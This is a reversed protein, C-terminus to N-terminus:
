VYNVNNQYIFDAQRSKFHKWRVRSCFYFLVKPFRQEIQSCSLSFRQPADTILHEFSTEASTWGRLSGQWPEGWVRILLIGEYGQICDTQEGNKRCNNGFWSLCEEKIKWDMMEGVCVWRCRREHIYNLANLPKHWIRHQLYIFLYNM